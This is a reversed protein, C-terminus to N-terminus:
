VHARGIEEAKKKAIEADALDMKAKATALDAAHMAVEADAKDKEAEKKAEGALILERQAAGIDLQLKAAVSLLGIVAVILVAAAIKLFKMVRVRGEREERAKALQTRTENHSDANTDLVSLGLDYDGKTLALKAFHLQTETLGERASQNGPWERLSENYLALANLDSSCM